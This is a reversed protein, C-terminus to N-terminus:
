RKTYLLPNDKDMHWMENRMKNRFENEILKLGSAPTLTLEGFYIKGGFSYLDVRVFDFDRSLTRAVAVMEDFNGPRVYRDKQYQSLEGEWLNWDRDFQAVTDLSPSAISLAYDFGAPGNYCHLNYDWPIEGDDLLLEEIIIKPEILDYHRECSVLSFKKSLLGNFYKIVEKQNLLNKDRVIMNWKCGHNAKIVFSDPLDDFVGPELRDWVGLLPILYKEGVREAVYQRVRYKDAILAYFPLNGYLKRYQVKEQAMSPNEFNGAFGMHKRFQQAIRLKRTQFEIKETIGRFPRFHETGCVAIRHLIGIIDFRAQRPM